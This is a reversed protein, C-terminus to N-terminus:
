SSSWTQDARSEGLVQAPLAPACDPTRDDGVTPEKSVTYRPSQVETRLTPKGASIDIMFAPTPPERAEGKDRLAVDGYEKNASHLEPRRFQVM